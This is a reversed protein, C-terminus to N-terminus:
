FWRRSQEVDYIIIVSLSRSELNCRNDDFHAAPFCNSMSTIWENDKSVSPFAPDFLKFGRCDFYFSQAIVLLKVLLFISLANVNKYHTRLDEFFFCRVIKPLRKLNCLFANKIKAFHYFGPKLIMFFLYFEEKQRCIRRLEIWIFIAVTIEFLANTGVQGGSGFFIQCLLCAWKHFSQLFSCM